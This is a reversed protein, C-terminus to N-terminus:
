CNRSMMICSNEWKMKHTVQEKTKERDRGNGRIRKTAKAKKKQEWKKLEQQEERLQEEKARAVQHVWTGTQEVKEITNNADVRAHRHTGTCETQVRMGVQRANTATRVSANVLGPGGEDVWVNM